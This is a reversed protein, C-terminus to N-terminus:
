SSSFYLAHKQKQCIFLFGLSLFDISSIIRQSLIGFSSRCWLVSIMSTMVHIAVSFNAPYIARCLFTLHIRFSNFHLGLILLRLLPRGGARQVLSILLIVCWESFITWYLSSYFLNSFAWIWDASSSSDWKAWSPIFIMKSMQIFIYQVISWM